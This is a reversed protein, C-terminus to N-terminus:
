VSGVVVAHHLDTPLAGLHIAVVLVVVLQEDSFDGESQELVHEDAALLFGHVFEELVALKISSTVVCQLLEHPCHLPKALKLHSDGDFLPVLASEFWDLHLDLLFIKTMLELPLLQQGLHKVKPPLLLKVGIPDIPGLVPGQLGNPVLFALVAAALDLSREVHPTVVEFKRVEALM